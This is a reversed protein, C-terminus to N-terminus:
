ENRKNEDVIELLESIDDINLADAIKEIVHRPFMKNKNNVMDSITAERIKTLEALRKQEWGREELIKKLHCVLVKGM